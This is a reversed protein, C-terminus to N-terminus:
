KLADIYIQSLKLSFNEISHQILVRNFSLESKSKIVEPEDIVSTLIKTLGNVIMESLWKVDNSYVDAFGHHTKPLEILWGCENNNIEPFASIDTTIVPMGNAQAELVIYGFTEHFSPLLLVHNENM